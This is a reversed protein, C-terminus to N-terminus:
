YIKNNCKIKEKPEELKTTEADRKHISKQHEEKGQQKKQWKDWISSQKIFNIIENPTRKLKRGDIQKMMEKHVSKLRCIKRQWITDKNSKLEITKRWSKLDSNAKKNYTM